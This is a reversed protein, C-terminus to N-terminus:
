LMGGYGYDTGADPTADEYGLHDENSAPVSTSSMFFRLLTLRKSSFWGRALYGDLVSTGGYRYQNRHPVPMEYGYHDLSIACKERFTKDLIQIDAM